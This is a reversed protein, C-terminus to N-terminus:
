SFRYVRNDGGEFFFHFLLRAFRKLPVAPLLYESINAVASRVSPVARLVRSSPLLDEGDSRGCLAADLAQLNASYLLTCHYMVRNKHICQASGSVKRDDVYIGMRKDTYAVIGLSELFDVTQQLYYEFDPREVTEMFSLNLNGEDHYVAGGGSFRRALLINNEHIYKEDVEKRVSQHKGIVVSPVSQWMMFFNDKKKKLLYEEAALNFYVDTCRNDICFM